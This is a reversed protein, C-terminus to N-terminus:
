RSLIRFRGARYPALDLAPARGAVLDGILGATVASMTLGLHAHGFAYLVRPERRSPGIVPLSDPLSPREGMWERQIAADALAPVLARAAAIRGRLRRFDPPQGPRSLEAGMTLRLGEDMPALVLGLSAFLTPGPLLAETGPSFCAHYGREALLPVRDGFRAALWASAAGACVVVRGAAVEGETTHLRLGGPGSRAELVRARVLRAGRALAAELYASALGGPDAVFGSGPQDIAGYLGETRLGPLRQRLAAADLIDFDVGQARMLAQDLRTGALAAASGYVKLWGGPRILDSRGALAALRHHAVLAPATLPAMAASIAAVRAPRSAAIMRLVWPLAAVHDGRRVWGYGDPNFLLRPLQRVVGPTANPTVGGIALAGANGFSAGTAPAPDIVTVAVGAEALVLATAAGVFGAGIVAVEAMGTGGPPSALTAPTAPPTAAPATATATM